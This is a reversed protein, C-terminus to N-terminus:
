RGCRQYSDTRLQSSSMRVADSDSSIIVSATSRLIPTDLHREFAADGELRLIRCTVIFRVIDSLLIDGPTDMLRGGMVNTKSRSSVNIKEAPRGHWHSKAISTVDCCLTIQQNECEAQVDGTVRRLNPDIQPRMEAMKQGKYPIM